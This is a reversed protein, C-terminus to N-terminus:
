DAKGNRSEEKRLDINDWERSKSYLLKAGTYDYAPRSSGGMEPM